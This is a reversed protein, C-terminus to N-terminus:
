DLFKFNSIIQEQFEPQTMNGHGHYASIRYVKNDKLIYTWVVDGTYGGIMNEFEVSIINNEETWKVTDMDLINGFSEMLKAKVFNRFNVNEEAPYIRVAIHAMTLSGINLKELNAEDVLLDNPYKIEYDYDSNKFTGWDVGLNEEDPNLRGPGIPNYGKDVEVGDLYGDKDSDVDIPDTFYIKVEDYDSLGDFDTDVRNPNIGLLIEEEDTLGDKDLDSLPEVIDDEEDEFFDDPEEPEPEPAPQENLTDSFGKLMDNFNEEEEELGFEEFTEDENNIYKSYVWFGALSLLVVALCIIIVTLIVNSKKGTKQVLNVEPPLNDNEVESKKGQLPTNGVPAQQQNNSTMPKVVESNEKKETNSFIDETTPEQLSAPASGAKKFPFEKDKNLNELDVTPGTNQLDEDISSGQTQNNPPNQNTQKNDFM